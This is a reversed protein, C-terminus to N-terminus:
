VGEGFETMWYLQVTCKETIDSRTMGAFQLVALFVVKPVNGQLEYILYKTHELTSYKPIV